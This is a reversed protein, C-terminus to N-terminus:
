LASVVQIYEVPFNMILNKAIHLLFTVTWQLPQPLDYPIMNGTTRVQYLFGFM